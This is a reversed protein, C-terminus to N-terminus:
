DKNEKEPEEAQPPSTDAESKKNLNLQNQTIERMLKEKEAKMGNIDLNDKLDDAARRFEGMARGLARALDPLKKPGIIILAVILIIIIEQMGIGLM